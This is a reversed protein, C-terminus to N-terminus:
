PLWDLKISKNQEKVQQGTPPCLAAAYKRLLTPYLQASLAGEARNSAPLPERDSSAIPLKRVM